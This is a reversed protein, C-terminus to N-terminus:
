LRNHHIRDILRHFTHALPHVKVYPQTKFATTQPISDTVLVQRLYGEGHLEALRQMATANCLNHAVGLHIEEIGKAEVLKRALEYVTGGSSIIDDLVIAVRKGTFDGLIDAIVAEEPRPRFKAAVAVPLDLITCFHQVWKAAGADPAVVIVDNRQQLDRYYEVFLPVIELVTVPTTGYFGHIAGTHPQLTILRNIGATLALDAMLKASTPERKAITPKDQRAYALYPLVGTVRSAGYERLARAGLLFAMYNQDISRETLPDYLTQFLFADRGAVEVEFRVCTESDSFQFDIQGAFDLAPAGSEQPTAQRLAEAVQEALVTGSRCAAILLEGWPSFLMGAHDHEAFTM